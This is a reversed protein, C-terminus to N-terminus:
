PALSIHLERDKEWFGFGFEKFVTDRGLLGQVLPNAAMKILQIPCNIVKGFVEITVDYQYAESQGAATGIEVRQGQDWSTLGLLPFLTHSLSTVSAGTDFLFSLQVRSGQATILGVQVLPFSLEVGNQDRGRYFAITHDFRKSVM